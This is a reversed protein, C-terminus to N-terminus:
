DLVKLPDQLNIFAAAFCLLATGYNGCILNLVGFISTSVIILKRM